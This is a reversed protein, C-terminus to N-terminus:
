YHQISNTVIINNNLPAPAIKILKRQQAATARTLRRRTPKQSTAEFNFSENSLTPNSPTTPITSSDNTHFQVLQPITSIKTMPQIDGDNNSLSEIRDLEAMAEQIAKELQTNLKRSRCSFYSINQKILIFIFETFEIQISQNFNFSIQM